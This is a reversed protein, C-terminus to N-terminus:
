IILFSPSIGDNWPPKKVLARGVSLREVMVVLTRWDRSGGGGVVAFEKECMIKASIM